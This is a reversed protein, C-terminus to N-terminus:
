RAAKIGAWTSAEFDLTTDDTVVVEDFAVEVSAPPNFDYGCLLVYGPDTYTGDTGQLMWDDPEDGATGTWLKAGILDGNAELRMWYDQGYQLDYSTYDLVQGQGVADARYLQLIDAGPAVFLVYGDEMTLQLRLGVVMSTGESLSGRFLCSYDAVSMGTPGDANGSATMATDPDSHTFTYWGDVVEYTGWPLEIWGDANGDEFDDSLLVEAPLAAALVAALFLTARM